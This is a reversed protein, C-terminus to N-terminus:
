PAATLRLRYCHGYEVLPNPLVGRSLEALSRNLVAESTGDTKPWAILLENRAGDLAIIPLEVSTWDASAPFAAREVGNVRVTLQSGTAASRTRYTMQLRFVRRGDLRVIFRSLPEYAEFYAPPKFAYAAANVGDAALHKPSLLDIQAEARSASYAESPLQGADGRTIGNLAEILPEDQLNEEAFPSVECFYRYTASRSEGILRSFQRGLWPPGARAFADLYSAMKGIVDPCLRAAEDCHFRVLDGSQRWRACHIAAMFHADAEIEPSVDLAGIAERPDFTDGFGMIQLAAQATSQVLLRIGDSTLHCYDLFMRRDPLQGDLRERILEPLDILHFGHKRASARLGDQITRACGPPLRLPLARSTDRAMEFLERAKGTRGGHLHCRALISPGVPSTGEDLDILAAALRAAEAIQGGDFAAQAEYALDRWRGNRDDNLVPALWASDERWDLLNSEPVVVIVPVGASKAIAALRDMCLGTRESRWRDIVDVFGRYGGAGLGRKLRRRTPADYLEAACWNNGAFLIFLDPKLQLSQSAVELIGGPDINSRALDVVELDRLKPAQRLLAQLVVAPAFVPDYFYGRAASEGLWVIRRGSCTAPIEDIAAWL